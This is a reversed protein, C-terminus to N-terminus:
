TGRILISITSSTRFDDHFMQMVECRKGDHSGGIPICWGGHRIGIRICYVGSSRANWRSHRGPVLIPTMVISILVLTDGLTDMNERHIM